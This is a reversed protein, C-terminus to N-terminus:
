KKKKPAAKKALAGAKKLDADAKKLAKDCWAVLQAPTQPKVHELTFATGSTLKDAAFRKGERVCSSLETRAEALITVRSQANKEKLGLRHQEVGKKSSAVPGELFAVGQRCTALTLQAKEAKAKEGRAWAAFDADKAFVDESSDFAAKLDNTRAELADCQQRTPHAPVVQGAIETLAHSRPVIADRADNLRKEFDRKEREAKVAPLRAAVEKFRDLHMQAEPYLDIDKELLLAKAEDLSKQMALPEYAEAAREAQDLATGARDALREADKMRAQLSKPGCSAAILMLLLAGLRM